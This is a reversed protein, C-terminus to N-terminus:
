QDTKRLIFIQTYKFLFAKDSFHKCINETMKYSSKETGECCIKLLMLKFCKKIILTNETRQLFDKQIKLENNWLRKKKWVLIKFKLLLHGLSNKLGTRLKKHQWPSKNSFNLQILIQNCCYGNSLSMVNQSHIWLVRFSLM